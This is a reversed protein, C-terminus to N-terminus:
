QQTQRREHVLERVRADYFGVPSYARRRLDIKALVEAEIQEGSEIEEGSLHPFNQAVHVALM